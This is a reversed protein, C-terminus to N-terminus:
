LVARNDAVELGPLNPKLKAKTVEQFELKWLIEDSDSLTSASRHPFSMLPLVIAMISLLELERRQQM